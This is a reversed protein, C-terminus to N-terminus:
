ILDQFLIKLLYFFKCGEYVFGVLQYSLITHLTIFENKFKRSAVISLHHHFVVYFSFEVLSPDKVVFIIDLMPLNSKDNYDYGEQEIAGSGYAFAFETTPFNCLLKSIVSTSSIDM